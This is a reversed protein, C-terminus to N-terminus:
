VDLYLKLIPFPIKKVEDITIRDEEPLVKIATQIYQLVPEIDLDWYRPQYPILYNTASNFLMKAGRINGNQFHYIAVAVQLMGQLFKNNKETMWIEELLDHCEYYEGENFKEFFLYYEEPYKKEM